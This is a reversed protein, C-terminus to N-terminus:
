RLATAYDQEKHMNFLAIIQERTFYESTYVNDPLDNETYAFWFRPKNYETNYYLDLRGEPLEVMIPDIPTYDFGDLITYYLKVFASDVDFFSFSGYENAEGFRSDKFTFKITNNSRECKIDVVGYEEITGVEDYFEHQTTKVLKLQGQLGNSLLLMCVIFWLGRM